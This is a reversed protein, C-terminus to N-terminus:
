DKKATSKKPSKSDLKDLRRELNAVVKLVEAHSEANKQAMLRVADFEERLRALLHNQLSGGPCGSGVSAASPIGVVGKSPPLEVQKQDTKTVNDASAAAPVDTSNEPEEQDVAQRPDESSRGGLWGPLGSKNYPLICM